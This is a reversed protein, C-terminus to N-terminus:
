VDETFLVFSDYVVPKSTQLKRNRRLVNLCCFHCMLAM